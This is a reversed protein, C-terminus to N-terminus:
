LPAYRVKQILEASAEPGGYAPSFTLVWRERSPDDYTTVIMPYTYSGYSQYQFLRDTRNGVIMPQGDSQATASFTEVAERADAASEYTYFTYALEADGELLCEWRAQWFDFAALDGEEDYFSEWRSAPRCSAGEYGKGANNDSPLMQPFAASLAALDQHGRSRGTVQSVWTTEDNWAWVAVATVLLVIVLGLIGLVKMAGSRRPAPPRYAPYGPASRALYPNAPAQRARYGPYPDAHPVPSEQPVRAGSHVRPDAHAGPPHSAPGPGAAYHGAPAQAPNAGPAPARYAAPSQAVQGRDGSAPPGQHAPAQYASPAVVPMPRPASQAAVPNPGLMAQRVAEAFEVCTEFRESPRKALARHLVGDLAPPMGHRVSSLAPPPRRLHGQIVTVAQPAEFPAEGTLLWFLTCALSYQDTRHDLQAGTLQEPSAYALTATFTGTQTLHAADERPRAIGFDTLLVREQGASRALLINAPKVDRHLVGMAHAFDLAKATELVIQAARPPPLTRPDVTSADVGDIYQMSIWLQEDDIGRDFVAVINPHDLQAVLDAEREFRARIEKDAFLERNLLKLATRRPLRPHRALYVAGMGGQGLLREITYGAFVDGPQLM